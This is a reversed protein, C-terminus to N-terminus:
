RLLPSLKVPDPLAVKEWPQGDLLLAVVQSAGGGTVRVLIEGKKQRVALDLSHAYEEPIYFREIGAVFRQHQCVGLIAQRCKATPKGYGFHRPQLCVFAAEEGSIPGDASLPLTPCVPLGYDIRYILYHGSFLDRPDFGEIPLRVETGMTRVLQKAVVLGLLVLIPLLLSLVVRNRQLWIIMIGVRGVLPVVTGTGVAM